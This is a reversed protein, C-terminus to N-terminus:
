VKKVADSKDFHKYHEETMEIVEGAKHPKGDFDTIGRLLKVKFTSAQKQNNSM